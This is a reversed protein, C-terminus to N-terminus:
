RHVVYAQARRLAALSRVVDDTAVAEIELVHMVEIALAQALEPDVGVADEDLAPCGFRKGDRFSVHTHHIAPLVDAALLAAPTQGVKWASKFDIVYFLDPVAERHRRLDDSTRLLGYSVNELCYRVGHDAAMEVLERTVAVYNSNFRGHDDLVLHRPPGHSVYASAGMLECLRLHDCLHNWAWRRQREYSTFLLNEWGYVYPHVSVVELESARVSEVIAVAVEPELEALGQVYIELGDAGLERILDVAEETMVGLGHFCGTSVAIGLSNM